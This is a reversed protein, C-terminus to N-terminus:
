FGSDKIITMTDGDRNITDKPEFTFKSGQCIYDYHADVKAKGDATIIIEDTAVYSLHNKNLITQINKKSSAPFVLHLKRLIWNLTKYNTTDYASLFVVTDSM